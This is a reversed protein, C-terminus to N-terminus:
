TEGGRNARTTRMALAISGVVLIIAFSFWQVAYSLHPGESLDIDHVPAPLARPDPGPDQELYFPLLPYPVQAQIQSVDTWFWADLRPRDPGLAPDAPALGSPRAQSMRILGRVTVPGTPGAYVARLEPSAAEYPIWGRDVLVANQSAEIRLPTLVHYGAVGNLARNRLVIEQSFDFTGSAVVPRYEMDQVELLDGHLTIPPQNVRSAITANLVRREQLRGLQWIGLGIMSLAGALVFVIWFLHRLKM